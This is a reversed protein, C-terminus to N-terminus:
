FASLGIACIVVVSVPSHRQENNLCLRHFFWQTVLGHPKHEWVKYLGTDVSVGM